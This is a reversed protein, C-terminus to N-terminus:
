NGNNPSWTSNNIYNCGIINNYKNGNNNNCNYKNNNFNREPTFSNYNYPYPSNLYYLKDNPFGNYPNYSYYGFPDYKMYQYYYYSDDNQAKNMNQETKNNHNEDSNQNTNNNNNNNIDKRARLIDNENEDNSLNKIYQNKNSEEKSPKKKIVKIKELKNIICKNNTNSTSNNSNSTSSSHINNHNNNQRIDENQNTNEDTKEWTDNIENEEDDDIDENNNNKIKNLNSKNRESDFSENNNEKKNIKIRIYNYSINNDIQKNNNKNQLSYKLANIGQCSKKKYIINTSNINMSKNNKEKYLKLYRNHEDKKSCDFFKKNDKNCVSVKLKENIKINIENIKFNEDLLFLDEGSFVVYKKSLYDTLSNLYSIEEIVKNVKYIDLEKYKLVIKIRMKYYNYKSDQGLYRSFIIVNNVISFIIILNNGLCVDSKIYDIINNSSDSYFSKRSNNKEKEYKDFLLSHNSSSNVNSQSLKDPELKFSYIKMLSVDESFINKDVYIIKGGKLERKNIIQELEKPIMLKNIYYDKNM